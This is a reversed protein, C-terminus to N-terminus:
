GLPLPFLFPRLGPSHLWLQEAPHLHTHRDAPQAGPPLGATSEDEEPAWSLRTPPSGPACPLPHLCLHLGRMLTEIQRGM